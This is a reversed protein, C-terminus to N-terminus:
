DGPLSVVLWRSGRRGILFNGVHSTVVYDHSGTPALRVTSAAGSPLNGARRGAEELLRTVRQTADEAPIAALSGSRWAAYDRVFRAAAASPALPATSAQPLLPEGGYPPPAFRAVVTMRHTMHRARPSVASLTALVEASAVLGAAVVTLVIRRVRPATPRRHDVAYRRPRGGPM